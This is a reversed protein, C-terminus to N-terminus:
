VLLKLGALVAIIAVLPRAYTDGQKLSFSAGLYSGGLMAIFLVVAPAVDVQGGLGVIATTVAGVAIGVFTRTAAGKLFTVGFAAVMLYTFFTAWGAGFLGAYIGVPFALAYGTRRRAASPAEGPKELKLWKGFTILPALLITLLGFAREYASPDVNLLLLAGGVSGATVVAMLPLGARADVLGARRYRFAGALSLSLVGARSSSVAVPGPMGIIILGPIILLGGGGSVVGYFSGTFGILAVLLLQGTSM